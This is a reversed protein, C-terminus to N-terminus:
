KRGIEGLRETRNNLLKGNFSEDTNEQPATCDRGSGAIRESDMCSSPIPLRDEGSCLRIPRPFVHAKIAQGESENSKEPGCYQICSIEFLMQEPQMKYVEPFLNQCVFSTFRRLNAIHSIAIVAGKGRKGQMHSHSDLIAITGNEREHIILVAREVIILVFFLSPLHAIFESDIAHQIHQPLLKWTIGRVSRYDIEHIVGGLAEIGQPITFTDLAPVFSVRSNQRKAMERAHVANGDVISNTLLALLSVPIIVENNSNGERSLPMSPLRMGSRHYVRAMALAIITCASSPKRRGGFRSQSIHQPLTWVYIWNDYVQAVSWHKNTSPNTFKSSDSDSESSLLVSGHPEVRKM